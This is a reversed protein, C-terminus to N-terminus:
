GVVLRQTECYGVFVAAEVLADADWDVGCRRRSKSGDRADAEDM